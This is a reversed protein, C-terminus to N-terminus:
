FEPVSYPNIEARKEGETRIPSSNSYYLILIFGFPVIVDLYHSIEYTCCLIHFIRKCKIICGCQRMAVCNLCLLFFIFFRGPASREGEYIMGLIICFMLSKTAQRIIFIARVREGNDSVHM